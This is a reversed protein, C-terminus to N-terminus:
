HRIALAQIAQGLTVLNQSPVNGAALQVQDTVRTQSTAFEVRDFFGVLLSVLGAFSIVWLVAKRHELEITRKNTWGSEATKSM